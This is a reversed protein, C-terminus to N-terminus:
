RKGFFSYTYIEEGQVFFNEFQGGKEIFKSIKEDTPHFNLLNINQKIKQEIFNNRLNGIIIGKSSFKKFVIFSSLLYSNSKFLSEIESLLFKENNFSYNSTGSHDIVVDVSNKLIPINLFDSCIFLINRKIGTKEFLDKLFLHRDLNHDVAIYLCDEPLEQAISRLFFGVGSGLELLVKNNLDISVFKRKAWQLSNQLNELYTPDTSHIYNSLNDIVHYRVPEGVILIGSEIRYTEGCNCELSGEIIQNNRIKGDQLTLGNSCKNCNLFQLARLDIGMTSRKAKSEEKFGELKGKLKEKLQILNDIEMEIQGYKELFLSQYYSDVEYDMLNGFNKYFFITKIENLKFGMNKLELVKELENQCRGDFFYNGGKKEPSILGLDMYHRITDISVNNVECFKSIKM